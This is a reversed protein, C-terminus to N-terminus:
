NFVHLHVHPSAGKWDGRCGPRPVSRPRYWHGQHPLWPSRAALLASVGTYLTQASLGLGGRRGGMLVQSFPNSVLVGGGVVVCISCISAEAVIIVVNGSLRSVLSFLPAPALLAWDFMAAQSIGPGDRGRRPLLLRESADRLQEKRRHWRGLGVEHSRRQTALM